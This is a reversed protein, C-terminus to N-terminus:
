SGHFLGLPSLTVEKSPYADNYFQLQIIIYYQQHVAAVHRGTLTNDTAYDFKRFHLIFLSLFYITQLSLLFNASPILITYCFM